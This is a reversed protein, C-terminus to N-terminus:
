PVQRPSLPTPRDQDIQRSPTRRLTALQTQLEDPDYFHGGVDVLRYSRGPVPVGTRAKGGLRRALRGSLNSSSWQTPKNFIWVARLTEDVESSVMLSPPADFIVAKGGADGLLEAAAAWQRVGDHIPILVDRGSRLVWHAADKAGGAHDRAGEQFIRRKGTPLTLTVRFGQSMILEFFRETPQPDVGNVLVLGRYVRDFAAPGRNTPSVASSSRARLSPRPSLSRQKLRPKSPAAAWRLLRMVRPTLSIGRPRRFTSKM